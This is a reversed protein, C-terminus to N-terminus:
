GQEQFIDLLPVDPDAILGVKGPVAQVELERVGATIPEGDTHVPVPVDTELVLHRFRDLHVAPDHIHQGNLAKPLLRLIGLRSLARAFGVDLQGDDVEAFPTLWFGGGTRRGNGITILLMRESREKDDWRAYVHPQVYKVLARFVAVLYILFGRLRTIKRSELSVQAEFGIGCNNVFFRGAQNIGTLQPSRVLGVDVVRRRDQLLYTVMQEADRPIGLVDALDNASGIPFIGMPVTPGEPAARCLGNVVENVTGDGGAAVIVGHQGGCAARYALEIGHEPGTTMVAQYNVHRARLIAEVQTWAKGARWRNAYPNVVVFYDAM